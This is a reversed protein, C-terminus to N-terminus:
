KTNSLYNIHKKTKLHKLLCRKLIECGCECTIKKKNKEKIIEKNNEYWEKKKEKIIEKNNELYEKIKKKNIENYKKKYEKNDEKWEQLTRSPIDNNLTANLEEIWYRERIASDKDNYENKEIEIFYWNNIGGNERIFKYLKINYEKRNENNCTKRHERVRRKFNKTKGVYIEKINEDKSVIKYYTYISSM